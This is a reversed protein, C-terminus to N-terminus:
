LFIVHVKMTGKVAQLNECAAKLFNESIKYDEISAYPFAIASIDQNAWKFFDTADQIACKGNKVVQDARRKAVGGIPDYLGKGHGAQM